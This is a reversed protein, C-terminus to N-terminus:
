PQPIRIDALRPALADLEDFGRARISGGDLYFVDDCGRVTSLRHTVILMTMRSHLSALAEVIRSETQPDLNSTAEDLVLVTPRVYLARALGVRQRQGGSLRVGREGVVTDLGEPLGTVFEELQTLTIAESVASDDINPGHWGLAVNARLTDDVLYVDQPVYGISRQWQERCSALERGDLTIKGSDAEILGLLVDLLTSKGSGTPGVIGVATRARVVLSIDTLAPTNRTPYQFSIGELRLERELRLSQAGESTPAPQDVAAYSQVEAEVLDLASGSYQVQNVLFLVRNLAPLLRFAAALVLGVAPLVADRGGVLGAAGVVIGTGIVLATELVYRLSGNVVNVARSARNIGRTRAVADEVYFLSRGRLELEKAASLGQLVFKFREQTLTQVVHGRGALGSRVIRVWFFSLITFYAAVVLAVVPSSLVLGAIVAAVIAGDAVLSVSSSVIGGIVQDVSFLVTRLTESSNRETRRLYPTRAHGRLLRGVLDAQAANAAGITLWLGFISLLSRLVFLAATIALLLVASHFRATSSHPQSPAFVGALGSVPQSLLVSILAFLLLLAVTEFAAIAAGYVAVLALRRRQPRQVLLLARRIQSTFKSRGTL